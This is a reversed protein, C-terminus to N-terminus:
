QVVMWRYELVLKLVSGAEVAVIWMAGSWCFRRSPRFAWDTEQQWRLSAKRAQPLNRRPTEGTRSGGFDQTHYTDDHRIERGPSEM